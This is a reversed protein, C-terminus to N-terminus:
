KRLKRPVLPEHMELFIDIDFRSKEVFKLVDRFRKHNIISNKRREEIITNAILTTGHILNDIQKGEIFHYQM